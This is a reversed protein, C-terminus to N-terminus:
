GFCVNRALQCRSLIAKLAGECFYLSQLGKGLSPTWSVEALCERHTAESMSMADGGPLGGTDIDHITMDVTGGGMDIIMM